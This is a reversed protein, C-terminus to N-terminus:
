ISTDIPLKNELQCCSLHQMTLNREKSPSQPKTKQVRHLIGAKDETPNSIEGSCLVGEPFNSPPADGGVGGGGQCHYQIIDRGKSSQTGQKNSISNFDPAREM